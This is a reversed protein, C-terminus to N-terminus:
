PSNENSIPPTMRVLEGFFWRSFRKQGKSNLHISDLFHTQNFELPCRVVTLTGEEVLRGLTAEMQVQEDDPHPSPIGEQVPLEVVVIMTQQDALDRFSGRIGPRLGFTMYKSWFEQRLAFFDEDVNQRQMQLQDRNWRQLFTQPDPPLQVSEAPLIAQRVLSRCLRVYRHVPLTTRPLNFLYTKEFVVVHPNAETVAALLDPLEPTRGAPRCLRAFHVASNIKEGLASLQDGRLTANRLLSTGIGVIRIRNNDEALEALLGRDRDDFAREVRSEYGIFLWAGTGFVLGVIALAALMSGLPPSREIIAKM